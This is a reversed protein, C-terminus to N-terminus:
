CIGFSLIQHGTIAAHGCAEDQALHPFFPSSPLAPSLIPTQALTVYVLECTLKVTPNMFVLQFYGNIPLLDEVVPFLSILKLCMLYPRLELM